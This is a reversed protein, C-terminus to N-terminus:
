TENRLGLEFLGLAYYKDTPSGDMAEGKGMNRYVDSDPPKGYYIAKWIHWGDVMLMKLREGYVRHYPRIITDRGVPLTLLMRGGPKTVRALARMAEIDADMEDAEVGYRGAIGVHEITSCNLIVDFYDAQFNLSSIDGKFVTLNPMDPQRVDQLDAAYLKGCLHAAQATLPSNGCGFDLVRDPADDLHSLVWPHEVYRDGFLTRIDTM